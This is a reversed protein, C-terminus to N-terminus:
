EAGALALFLAGRGGCRRSRRGTSRGSWLGHEALRDVGREALRALLQLGAVDVDAAADVDLRALVTVVDGDAGAM